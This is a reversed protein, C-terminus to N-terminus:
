RVQRRRVRDHGCRTAARMSSRKSSRPIYPDSLPVDAVGILYRPPDAIEAGAGTTGQERVRRALEVVENPGLDFVSTAGPHDGGDM